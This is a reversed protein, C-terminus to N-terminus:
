GHEEEDPAMSTEYIERYLPSREMLEAHTGQSVLRGKDMVLIRDADIVSAARQSVIFTIRGRGSKGSEALAQRLAKDTAYDLASFSDDLILIDPDSVLGRAISLRQRQGGSFNRGMPEVKADLGGKQEVTERIRATELAKWLVDEDAEQRGMRLNDGISGQFLVSKQAVFSIRKEPLVEVSGATPAYYGPILRVLSSKGSATPGIIGITEGPLATFSIDSLAPAQGGAYTLSVNSFRIGEFEGEYANNNRREEATEERGAELADALRGAGAMGRNIIVVLNAFKVTEVLIQAMYNYLAVTQGQTLTGANVKIGGAWLLALIALNVTVYTAPNMLGSLDGASIQRNKLQEDAARFNEKEREERCFARIVRVGTLNERILRLLSEMGQQIALLGPLNLSMIVGILLGLLLILVGFILAGHLDIAMAGFMAGLVAFPSRLFLRLFMNVGNQVLQIDSTLRTLLTSIGLQDLSSFSLAQVHAFLARRVAAAFDVAARAAFYQATVAAAFGVAALILLIVTYFIIRDQRKQLIGQDILMALIFPVFLEFVAELMKFLPALVCALRNDALFPILRKM